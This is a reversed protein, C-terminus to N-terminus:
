TQLANIITKSQALEDHYGPLRVFIEGNYAGLRPGGPVRITRLQLTVTASKMEIFINTQVDSQTPRLYFDSRPTGEVSEALGIGANNGFVVQLVSEPCHFATVADIAMVVQQPDSSLGVEIRFPLATSASAANLKDRSREVLANTRSTKHQQAAVQNISQVGVLQILILVAVRSSKIM